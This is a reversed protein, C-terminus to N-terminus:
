FWLYFFIVRVKMSLAQGVENQLIHTKPLLYHIARHQKPNWGSLGFSRCKHGSYCAWFSCRAKDDELEVVAVGLNWFCPTRRVSDMQRCNKKGRCLQYCGVKHQPYYSSFHQPTILVIHPSYFYPRWAMTFILAHM